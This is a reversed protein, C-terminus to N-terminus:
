HSTDSRVQKAIAEGLKDQLYYPDMAQVCACATTLIEKRQPGGESVVHCRMPQERSLKNDCHLTKRGSTKNHAALKFM